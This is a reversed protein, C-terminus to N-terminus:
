CDYIIQSLFSTYNNVDKWTKKATDWALMAAFSVMASDFARRELPHRILSLSLCLVAQDLPNHEEGEDAEGELCVQGAQEWATTASSLQEQTQQFPPRDERHLYDDQTVRYFYCLLKQWTQIYKQRSQSNQLPKIPDQSMEAGRFTNLLKANVKSLRREEQGEDNDLVAMGKTLLRGVSACIAALEPEDGEDPLQYAQPIEELPLGELHSAYGTGRLWPTLESIHGTPEM